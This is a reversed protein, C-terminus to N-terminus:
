SCVSYYIVSILSFLNMTIYIITKVQYFFGLAKTDFTDIFNSISQYKITNTNTPMMFFECLETQEIDSGGNFEAGYRGQRFAALVVYIPHNILISDYIQNIEDLFNSSSRLSGRRSTSYLTKFKIMINALTENVLNYDPLSSDIEKKQM